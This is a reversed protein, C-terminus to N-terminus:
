QACYWVNQYYVFTLLIAGSFVRSAVPAGAGNVINKGGGAVTLSGSANQKLIRVVDGDQIDTPNPLTLTGDVSSTYLNMGTNISLTTAAPTVAVSHGLRRIRGRGDLSMTTPNTSSIGGTRVAMALGSGTASTVVVGEACNEAVYGRATAGSYMGAIIGSQANFGYQWHKAGGGNRALFAAGGDASSAGLLVVDVGNPRASEKFNVMGLEAIVADAARGEARLTANANWTWIKSNPNIRLGTGAAPTSAATANKIWWGDALVVQSTTPNYEEVFGWSPTAHNTRVIMGTKLKEGVSTPVTFGTSSYTTSEVIEWDAYPQDSIDMFLSAYDVSGYNAMHQGGSVGTIQPEFGTLSYNGRISLACAHRKVGYFQKAVGLHGVKLTDAGADANTIIDSDVAPNRGLYDISQGYDRVSATDGLREAVTRTKYGILEAGDNTALEQRLVDDGLLVLNAADTAWTGTLRLPLTAGPGPRYLGATTGTTAADVAVYENREALVVGAAYDGKSVYGSSVLFAQFRSEKDAQSGDFAATRGDQAAEFEFNMGSFSRRMEGFRDEYFPEDGNSWNDINQANDYLDKPAMSGLPNLTRYQTM